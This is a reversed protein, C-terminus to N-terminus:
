RPSRTLVLALGTEPDSVSIITGGARYEVFAPLELGGAIPAPTDAGSLLAEPRADAAGDAGEGDIVGGNQDMADGADNAATATAAATAAASSPEATWAALAGSVDVRASPLLGAAVLNRAVPALSVAGVGRRRGPGYSAVAWTLDATDLLHIAFSDADADGADMTAAAELLRAGSDSTTLRWEVVPVGGRLLLVTPSTGDIEPAALHLLTALLVLLPATM